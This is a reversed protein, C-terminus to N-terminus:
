MGRENLWALAKRAQKIESICERIDMKLCAIRETFRTNLGKLIDPHPNFCYYYRVVEIKKDEEDDYNPDYYPNDIEFFEEDVISVFGHGKLTNLSYRSPEEYGQYDKAYLNNYEKSTFRKPNLKEPDVEEFFAFTGMVKDM